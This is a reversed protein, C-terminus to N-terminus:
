SARRAAQAFRRIHGDIDTLATGVVVADAGAEFAEDVEEPSGVGGECITFALGKKKMARVLDLAPLPTGKTAPTYGCLTTAVIEAGAAAARQAEELTACDAMALAGRSRIARVADDFTSGDPRARATADAAVITAGAALVAEVDALTPTIYPEYGSVARKLIGVIPAGGGVAERVAAIRALGEIRVGAAGNAIACRALAAVIHPAELASGAVPQISVVLGGHLGTLTM